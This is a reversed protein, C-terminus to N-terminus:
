APVTTVPATPRALDVVVRGREDVRTPFSVLGAGDAPYTAARCRDSFTRSAAEWRLACRRPAGPAHAEFARWDDGGLHQVYVDRSGGLPDPLLLPGSNRVTTALSKADGVVFLGTPRRGSQGGGLNNAVLLFLLVALALGGAATLVAFRTPSRREATV